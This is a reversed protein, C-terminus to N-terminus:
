ISLVSIIKYNKYFLCFIIKIIESTIITLLIINKDAIFKKNLIGLIKNKVRILVAKLLKLNIYFNLM